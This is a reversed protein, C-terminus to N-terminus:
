DKCGLVISWFRQIYFCDWHRFVFTALDPVIIITLFLVEMFFGTLAFYKSIKLTTKEDTSLRLFTKKAYGNAAILLYFVGAPALLFSSIMRDQM